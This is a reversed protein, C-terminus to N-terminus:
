GALRYPGDSAQEVHGLRWATVGRGALVALAADVADAALVLVMGVGCNFTRWM